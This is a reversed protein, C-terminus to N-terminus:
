SNYFPLLTGILPNSSRHLSKGYKVRRKSCLSPWDDYGFYSRVDSVSENRRYLLVRRFIANYAVQMLRCSESSTKLVEIGYSLIPACHTMLLHLQVDESPKSRFRLLSNLSKYFKSVCGNVSCRFEKEAQITVGLYKFSQVWQINGGAIALPPPKSKYNPGIIMAQSKKPNFCIDWEIGYATCVDIMKQLAARSPALLAIDDAYVIIGFFVGLIYCGVKEEQLHRVLDDIYVCYLPPSLVGGQRM